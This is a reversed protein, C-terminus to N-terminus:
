SRSTKARDQMDSLRIAKWLRDKLPSQNGNGSLEQRREGLDIM